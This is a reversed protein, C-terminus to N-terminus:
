ALCCKKFKKGSGCPCPDNRGAKPGSPAKPLPPQPKVTAALFHAFPGSMFAARERIQNPLQPHQQFMAGALARLRGADFNKPKVGLLKQKVHDYTVWGRLEASGSEIEWITLIM